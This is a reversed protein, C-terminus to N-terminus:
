AGAPTDTEAAAGSSVPLLVRFVTNGPASDVEITGNHRLVIRRAIDLGLGTGDKVDKTTFFPDFIQGRIGPAIGVGNDVVEVVVKDRKRFARVAVARDTREPDLADLANDLLNHWVQNLEGGYVRVPPLDPAIETRLEAGRSRFKAGLVAATDVIGAAINQEQSGAGSGMYAFRKVSSVMDHIRGTAHEIEKTLARAAHESGIWTVAAALQRPSLTAALEDLDSVTLATEALQATLESSMGHAELWEEFSDERDSFDLASWLRTISGTAQEQVHQILTLQEDTVHSAGLQRAADCSATIAGRLLRTSRAAASAPNNLEHALGAWLKGLTILKEDQVFEQTFRRARELMAHVCTTTLTPATHIMEPFHECHVALTELPEEAIGFGPSSALRSYPLLGAVDGGFWEMIKGQGSGRETYFALHGSLLVWMHLIPEGKYTLTEGAAFRRIESRAALWALEEEPAVGFLRHGRLRELIEGATAPVSTGLLLAETPPTASSGAAANLHQQM